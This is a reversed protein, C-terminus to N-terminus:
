EVRFRYMWGYGGNNFHIRLEGLSDYIRENEDIM